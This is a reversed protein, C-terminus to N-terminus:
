PCTGPCLEIRHLRDYPTAGEEHQKNNAPLGSHAFLNRRMQAAWRRDTHLRNKTEVILIVEGDPASFSFDFGTDHSRGNTKVNTLM